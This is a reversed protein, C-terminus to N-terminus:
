TINCKFPKPTNMCYVNDCWGWIWKRDGTQTMEEKLVTGNFGTGCLYIGKSLHMEWSTNAIRSTQLLVSTFKMCWLDLSNMPQYAQEHRVQQKQHVSYSWIDGFPFSLILSHHAPLSMSPFSKLWNLSVLQVQCSLFSHLDWALIWVLYKRGSPWVAAVITAYVHAWPCM